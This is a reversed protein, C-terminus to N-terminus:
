LVSECQQNISLQQNTMHVEANCHVVSEDSEVMDSMDSESEASNSTDSETQLHAPYPVDFVKGKDSFMRLIGGSAGMEGGGNLQGDLEFAENGIGHKNNENKYIKNIQSLPFDPM